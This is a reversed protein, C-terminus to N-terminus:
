NAVVFHCYPSISIILTWLHSGFINLCAAIAGLKIGDGRSGVKHTLCPVNHPQFAHFTQTCGSNCVQQEAEMARVRAPQLTAGGSDPWINGVLGPFVQSCVWTGLVGVEECM